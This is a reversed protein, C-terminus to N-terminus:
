GGKSAKYINHFGLGSLTWTLVLAVFWVIRGGQHGFLQSFLNFQMFHEVQMHLHGVGMVLFGWAMFSMGKGFIGGKLARATLFAFFVAAFLFPLELVGFWVSAAMDEDGHTQAFTPASIMMCISFVFAMSYFYRRM